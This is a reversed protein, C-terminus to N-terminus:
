ALVPEPDARIAWVSPQAIIVAFCVIEIVATAFLTQTIGILAAVPGAAASGLPMLVFSGLADYSSV